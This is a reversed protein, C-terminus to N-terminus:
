GWPHTGCWLEFRTWSPSGIRLDAPGPLGSARCESRLNPTYANIRGGQTFVHLFFCDAPVDLDRLFGIEGQARKQAGLPHFLAVERFEDLLGNAGMNKM